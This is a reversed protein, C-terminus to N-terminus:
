TNYCYVGHKTFQSDYSRSKAKQRDIKQGKSALTSSRLSLATLATKLRRQFCRYSHYLVHCHVIEPAM